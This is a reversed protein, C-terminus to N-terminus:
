KCGWRGLLEETRQDNHGPIEYSLIIAQSTRTIAFHLERNSEPSTLIEMNRSEHNISSKIEHTSIFASHFYKDERYYTIKPWKRGEQQGREGDAEIVDLM